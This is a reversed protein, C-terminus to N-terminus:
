VYVREILGVSIKSLLAVDHFVSMHMKEHSLLFQVSLVTPASPFVVFLDYIQLLMLFIM